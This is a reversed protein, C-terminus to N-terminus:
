LRQLIVVVLVFYIAIYLGFHIIARKVGYFIAVATTSVIIAVFMILPSVASLLLGLASVAVIWDHGPRVINRYFM